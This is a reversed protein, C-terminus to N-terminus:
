ETFKTLIPSMHITNSRKVEERVKSKVKRLASIIFNSIKINKFFFFFTGLSIKLKRKSNAATYTDSVWMVKGKGRNTSWM